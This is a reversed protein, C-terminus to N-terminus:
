RSARCGPPGTPARSRSGAACHAPTATWPTRDGIAAAREPAGRSESARVTQWFAHGCSHGQGAPGPDHCVKGTIPDQAGQLYAVVEDRRGAALDTENVAYSMWVVDTTSMVNPGIQANHRFGGTRPDHLSRTWERVTDRTEDLSVGHHRWDEHRSQRNDEWVPLTSLDDRGATPCARHICPHREGSM